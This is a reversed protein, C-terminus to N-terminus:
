GCINLWGFTLKCCNSHRKKQLFLAMFLHPTSYRFLHSWHRPQISIFHIKAPFSFLWYRSPGTPSAPLGAQAHFCIFAGASHEDYSCVFIQNSNYDLNRLDYGFQTFEKAYIFLPLHITCQLFKWLTVYAMGAHLSKNRGNTCWLEM